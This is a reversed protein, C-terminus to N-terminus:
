GLSNAIVHPISTIPSLRQPSYLDAWENPQGTISDRLIMAAVM